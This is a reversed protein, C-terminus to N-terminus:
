NHGTRLAQAVDPRGFSEAMEAAKEWPYEVSRFEAEWRGSADDVLAYRAHPTGAAMEHPYPEEGLYAPWGVSGPNVVLQGGPLRMEGALHTHGCLLLRKESVDGLRQEVEAVTAARVVGSPEVTHMLYQLDDAPSGHFALVGPAPELTLPLSAMWERHRATLLGGAVRDSMGQREEPFTLVQREHNGSVTPLGLEILRDATEAPQVYGSFLDGLNVTLEVGDGAIASVVAELAPLNGHVDSIVALRM